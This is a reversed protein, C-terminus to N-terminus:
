LENYLDRAPIGKLKRAKILNVEEVADSIDQLLQEKTHEEDEQKPVQIVYGVSKVLKM